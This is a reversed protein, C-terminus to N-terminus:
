CGGRRAMPLYPSIGVCTLPLSWLIGCDVVELAWRSTLRGAVAISTVWSVLVLVLLVGCKLSESERSRRGSYTTCSSSVNSPCDSPMDIVSCSFGVWGVGLSTGSERLELTWTYALMFCGWYVCRQYSNGDSSMVRGLTIVTRWPTGKMCTSGACPCTVRRYHRRHVVVRSNQEM